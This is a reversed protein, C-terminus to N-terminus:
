PERGSNAIIRLGAQADARGQAMANGARAVLVPLPRCLAQELGAAERQCQELVAQFTHAGLPTLEHTGRAVCDMWKDLIALKISLKEEDLM